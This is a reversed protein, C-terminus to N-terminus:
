GVNSIDFKVSGKQDTLSRYVYIEQENKTDIRKHSNVSLTSTTISFIANKGSLTPTMNFNHYISRPSNSLLIRYELTWHAYNSKVRCRFSHERLLVLEM